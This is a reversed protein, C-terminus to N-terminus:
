HSLVSISYRKKCLLGVEKDPIELKKVVAGSQKAYHQLDDVVKKPCNSSIFVEKVKGLKLAKVTENTGYIIKKGGLAKKFDELM